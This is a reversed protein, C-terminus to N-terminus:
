SLLGRAFSLFAQVDNFNTVMGVSIRVAGSSKGDICLRFDDISMKDKHDPSTFCVDLEVRSIGLAVEGAGPNCFCGTRLSINVKNAESEIFRHDFAKGNKDYFNVTVAGGRGESTAPGFLRVLPEGTSHKMATLNQLLWGTLTRVRESISDYGISEIHKLGIEIAPINLYDLTGDEFAPAGDALYYKDGQVSAVTITGGAFWPRHLKALASKRAILAGLGTPYGFIKYFSIPVFDPKVKSLDLKNTPVYAAADLLVDWGHAHAKEIWELPHKVSSFNSQAPYAFLNYGNKSPRALELDLQSADIRMEPLMVPIYTVEAGRAHAFERIGNVSNHNDFTLLYRGNPFPYSEGVLKLAGSANPTFIALYEDPDASFFKLIYERTGEVLHTAAQSTPNSSHPNGYVNENLLKHHKQIQSEAYIGGGTYDLYVHEGADLRAYDSKRLKDIAETNKYTPYQALFTELENTTM